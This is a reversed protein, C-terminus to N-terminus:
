ETVSVAKQSLAWSRVNPRKSSSNQDRDGAELNRADQPTAKNGRSQKASAHERGVRCACAVSTVWGATAVDTGVQV